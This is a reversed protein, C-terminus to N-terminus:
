ETGMKMALTDGVTIRDRLPDGALDAYEPFQALLPANPGPVKGEAFAIGYLLATVSKSISRIDHLTDPGHHVVGLQRGRQEDSGDFYVEALTEGQCIVLAAHLWKLKGAKFAETIALDAPRIEQAAVTGVLMAACVAAAGMRAALGAGLPVALAQLM